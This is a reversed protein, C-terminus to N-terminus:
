SEGLALCFLDVCLIEGRRKGQEVGQDLSAPIGVGGFNGSRPGVFARWLLALVIM